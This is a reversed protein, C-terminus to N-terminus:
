PQLETLDLPVRAVAEVLLIHLVELAVIEEQTEKHYQPQQHIVQGEQQLVLPDEVVPDVQLEMLLHDQLIQEVKDVV